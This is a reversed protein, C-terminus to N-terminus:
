GGGDAWTLIAGKSLFPGGQQRLAGGDAEDDFLDLQSLANLVSPLRKGLKGHKMPHVVQRRGVKGQHRWHRVHHQQLKLVPLPDFGPLEENGQSFWRCVQLVPNTLFGPTEM